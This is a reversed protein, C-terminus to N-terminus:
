TMKWKVLKFGWILFLNFFMKRSHVKRGCELYRALCKWRKGCKVWWRGLFIEWIWRMPLHLLNEFYKYVFFLFRLVFIEGFCCANKRYLFFYIFFNGVKKLIELVNKCVYACFLIFIKKALYFHLNLATPINSKGGTMFLLLRFRVSFEM